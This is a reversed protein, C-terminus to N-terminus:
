HDKEVLKRTRRLLFYKPNMRKMSCNSSSVRTLFEQIQGPWELQEQDKRKSSSVVGTFFKIQNKEFLRKQSKDLNM